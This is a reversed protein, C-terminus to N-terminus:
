IPEQGLSSSASLYKTVTSTSQNLTLPSELIRRPFWKYFRAPFLNFNYFGVM